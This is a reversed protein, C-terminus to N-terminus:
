LKNRCVWRISGSRPATTAIWVWSTDACNCIARKNRAMGTKAEWEFDVLRRIVEWGTTFSFWTQCRKNRTVVLALTLAQTPALFLDPGEISMRSLKYPTLETVLVNRISAGRGQSDMILDDTSALAVLRNSIEALLEPYERLQYSIIAQISAIKNKLRHGLEEVALKRLNEEDQLRKTLARYRDGGWVILLSGILYILLSITEAPGSPIFALRQPFAWWALVGGLIAAFAGPGAGGIITAFFTAPYFTVFPVTELGLFAIVWRVFEALAVFLSAALYDRVVVLLNAPLWGAAKTLWTSRM